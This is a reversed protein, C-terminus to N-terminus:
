TQSDDHNVAEVVGYGDCTACEPGDDPECDPDEHYGFGDCDPCTVRDDTDTM